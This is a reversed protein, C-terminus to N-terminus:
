ISVLVVSIERVNNFRATSVPYETVGEQDELLAFDAQAKGSNPPGLSSLSTRPTSSTSANTSSSPGTSPIFESSTVAEIEEFDIGNPRNVFLRCRQHFSCCLRNPLTSFSSLLSLNLILEVSFADFQLTEASEPHRNQSNQSDRSQNM